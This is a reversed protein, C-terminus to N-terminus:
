TPPHRRVYMVLLLFLVGAVIKAKDSMGEQPPPVELPAPFAVGTPPPYMTLWKKAAPTLPKPTLPGGGVAIRQTNVMKPPEEDAVVQFAGYCHDVTVTRGCERADGEIVLAVGGGGDVTDDLTFEARVVKAHCGFCRSTGQFHEMQPEFFKMMREFGPFQDLTMWSLWLDNGVVGNYPNRYTMIIWFFDDTLTVIPAGGEGWFKLTGRQKSNKPDANGIVLNLIIGFM